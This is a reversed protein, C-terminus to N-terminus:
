GSAFSLCAFHPATPAFSGLAVDKSGPFSAGEGARGGSMGRPSLSTAWCVRAFVRKFFKRDSDRNWMNRSPGVGGYGRQAVPSKSTALVSFHVLIEGEFNAFSDHFDGM